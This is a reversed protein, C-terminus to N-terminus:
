PIFADGVGSKASTVTLPVQTVSTLLTVFKQVESLPANSIYVIDKNQMEFQDALLLGGADALNFRYIVPVIERGAAVTIHERPVISQVTSYHEYRMVFVSRADARLDSLGNALGLAQNLSLHAAGFPIKSNVGTAGFVTFTFPERTVTVVDGPQLLVNESPRELVTSLRAKAIQTGRNLQIGTEYPPGSFGGADALINLLRGDSSPLPLRGPRGVAGIVTIGGGVPKAVVVMAQPNIAKDGLAQAIRQEAESPTSGAVPVRGGYPISISGDSSVPQEPLTTHKAGGGGESADSFLGGAAAEWITVSVIDGIGISGARRNRTAGTLSSLGGRPVSNVYNVISENADILQFGGQLVQSQKTEIASATPGSEPLASCGSIAFAGLVLLVKHKM